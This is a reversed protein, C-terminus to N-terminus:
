SAALRAKALRAYARALSLKEKESNSSRAKLAETQVYRSTACRIQRGTM